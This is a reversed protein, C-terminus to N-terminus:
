DVWKFYWLQFVLLKWILGKYHLKDKKYDEVLNSVINVDFLNSKGLTEKNLYDDILFSLENQLWHDIPVSFGAKPREMIEKPIFDHVIDKLIRKGGNKFVKYELPLNAAYEILRHDLLPERGEISVSMTARDVKTLIDNQMYMKYDILLAIDIQNKIGSYDKEYITPYLNYTKNKFISNSYNTPLSSMYRFMKATQKAKDKNLSNGFGEFKHKIAVKDKTFLNSSIQLAFKSFDHFNNPIKNLLNLKNSLSIYRSYGGFIEDGGDASLVVKVQKQSLKSVLITPIASSDAFPEDFFYPLDPVIDLADQHKCIYETHDTGLYQSVQKAYAAENNGKEFGITFTKIKETRDKQLIATVLSSDYGGSLFVGVPVDSVMRYDCASKLLVTLETKAEEYKIPSKTKKYFYDLDWYKNIKFLNTNLDFTLIEAPELKFCNKFICYPAPVYGFDFYLRLANEDIEKQFKPHKFFPKLESSFLFLGDNSYYYFPKVGARDRFVTIVNKTNDLIIIVFMGIFRDVCKEGWQEFSHLIVETDSDTHFQHGLIILENKIESYNYIEGNFVISYDKYHMPQHGNESLDIISLRVHGLAVNCKDFKNFYQGYSDPGRHNITKIMELLVENSTTKSSDIYGVIGCM